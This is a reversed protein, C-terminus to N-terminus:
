SARRLYLQGDSLRQEFHEVANLASVVGDEHFGNRWYAGCFFTRDINLAAQRQQAAVANRSYIPHEYQVRRIIKNPNIKQDANLTVLYQKEADLSQLINMNYTVAVHRTRDQPIHYNWAAWARRRRPM